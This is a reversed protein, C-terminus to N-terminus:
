ILLRGIEQRLHIGFFSERDAPSKLGLPLESEVLQWLPEMPFSRNMKFNEMVKSTVAQAKALERAAAKLAQDRTGQDGMEKFDDHIGRALMGLAVKRLSSAIIEGKIEKPMSPARDVLAGKLFGAWRTYAEAFRERVVEGGEDAKNRAFADPTVSSASASVTKRSPAMALLLLAGIVLTAILWPSRELGEEQIQAFLIAAIVGAVAVVLARQWSTLGLRM